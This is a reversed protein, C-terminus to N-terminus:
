LNEFSKQTLISQGNKRKGLSSITKRIETVQKSVIRKRIEDIRFIVESIKSIDGSACIFILNLKTTDDLYQADDKNYAKLFSSLIEFAPSFKSPKASSKICEHDEPQQYISKKM